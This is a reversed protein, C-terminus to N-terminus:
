HSMLAPVTLSKFMGRTVGGLIFERIRSHGYGGMVLLDASTDAALSLIASHINHPECAFKNATAALGHRALHAILADASLEEPADDDENIAVIEIQTAKHLFPLADRVARAAPRSGDWCILVRDLKLPGTHIYPVLLMPQGSNFLVAEPLADHHSPRGRDPQAVVNLDYLRSIESLTQNALAPSDCLTRGGHSLGSTRVATEFQDFRQAALDLDANYLTADAFYAASAGVVIAPNIPQYACAIGDLHAGFLQAVSIACDIVPTAPSDVPLHVLIDKLM